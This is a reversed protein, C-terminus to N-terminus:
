ARRFRRPRCRSWAHDPVARGDRVDRSEASLVTRLERSSEYVTLLAPGAAAATCHLRPCRAPCTDLTNRLVTMRRQPPPTAVLFRDHSVAPGHPGRHAEHQASRCRAGVGVRHSLGGRSVVIRVGVLRSCHRGGAPADQIHFEIFPCTTSMHSSSRIAISGANSRVGISGTSGTTACSASGPPRSATGGPAVRIM